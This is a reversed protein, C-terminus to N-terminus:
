YEQTGATADEYLKYIRYKGYKSNELRYVVSMDTESYYFITGEEIWTAQLNEFPMEDTLMKTTKVEVNFSEPLEDAHQAINEYLRDNIMVFDWHITGNPYGTPDLDTESVTALEGYIIYRQYKGEIHNELAFVVSENTNSYYFLTGTEVGLAQLNESPLAETLTQTVEAENSFGEPLEDVFQELRQYTHNNIMVYGGMITEESSKTKEEDRMVTNCGTFFLSCMILTIILKRKM